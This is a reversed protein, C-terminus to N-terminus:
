HYTGRCHKLLKLIQCCAFFLVSVSNLYNRPPVLGQIKAAPSPKFVGPCSHLHELKEPEDSDQKRGYGVSMPCPTM